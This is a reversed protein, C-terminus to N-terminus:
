KAAVVAQGMLHAQMIRICPDSVLMDCGLFMGLGLMLM